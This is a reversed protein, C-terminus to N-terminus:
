RSTMNAHTRNLDNLYYHEVYGGLKTELKLGGGGGGGGGGLGPVGFFGLRFLTLVM